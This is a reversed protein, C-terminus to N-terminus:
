SEVTDADTDADGDRRPNLAADTAEALAPGIGSVEQLSESGAERIKAVSGFHTVLAQRRAPGLGPVGDLASATMSRSRRARHASIAFRHSEDRLRQLLYLGQSSRPLVLPFDDGPLWVEELRKALGIVPLEDLGLEALVQAAAAVQPPGGDVVVLSPPYAFRGREGAHDDAAVEGGLTLTSEREAAMRAFRRRLVDRM